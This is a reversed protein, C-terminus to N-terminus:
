QKVSIEDHVKTADGAVATAKAIITKKEDESKVPGKVTVVGDQSIVKINHADTSLTKDDMISKRINASLKQDSSNMKQQDATPEAASRDRQNVRTNDPQPAQAYTLVCPALALLSVISIRHIRKLM